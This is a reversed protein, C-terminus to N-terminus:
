IAGDARMTHSDFLARLTCAANFGALIGLRRPEGAALWLERYPGLAPQEGDTANVSLQSSFEDGHESAPRELFVLTRSKCGSIAGCDQGDRCPSGPPVVGPLRGNVARCIAGPEVASGRGGESNRPRSDVYVAENWLTKSGRATILRCGRRWAPTFSSEQKARVCVSVKGPQGKSSYSPNLRSCSSRLGFHLPGCHDRTPWSRRLAAESFCVLAVSCCKGITLAVSRTPSFRPLSHHLVAGLIGGKFITRADCTTQWTAELFAQRIPCVPEQQAALHPGHLAAHFGM